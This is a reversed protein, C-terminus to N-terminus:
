DQDGEERVNKCRPCRVVDDKVVPMFRLQCSPCDVKRGEERAKEKLDSVVQQAVAPHIYVNDDDEPM